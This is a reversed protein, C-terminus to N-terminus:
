CGLQYDASFSSLIVEHILILMSIINKFSSCRSLYSTVVYCKLMKSTFVKGFETFIM